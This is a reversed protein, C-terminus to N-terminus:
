KHLAKKIEEFHAPAKPSDDVLDPMIEEIYEFVEEKKQPSLPVLKAWEKVLGMGNELTDGYGEITIKILATFFIASLSNYEVSLRKAHEAPAFTKNSCKLTSVADSEMKRYEDDHLEIFESVKQTKSISEKRVSKEKVFKKKEKTKSSKWGDDEDESDKRSDKAVWNHKRLDIIEEVMFKYRVSLNASSEKLWTIYSDMYEKAIPVDLRSGAHKLIYCVIEVNEPTRDEMIFFISSHMTSDKLVLQLYLEVAFRAITLARKKISIREYEKEKNNSIEMVRKALEEATMSVMKHEVQDTAWSRKVMFEQQSLKIITRRFVTKYGTPSNEVFPEETQARFRVELREVLAAYVGTYAHEVMARNFFAKALEEMAEVTPVKISLIRKAVEDINNQCVQNLALNFEAIYPEISEFVTVPLAAKRADKFGSTKFMKFDKRKKGAGISKALINKDIISPMGESHSKLAWLQEKSYIIPLSTITAGDLSKYFSNPSSVAKDVAASSIPEAEKTSATAAITQPTNEAKEQLHIKESVTVTASEPKNASAPSITKTGASSAAEAKKYPEEKPSRTASDSSIKMKSIGKVLKDQRSVSEGKEKFTKEPKEITLTPGQAAAATTKNLAPVKRATRFAQPKAQTKKEPKKNFIANLLKKSQRATWVNGGPGVPEEEEEESEEKVPEVPNEAVTSLSKEPASVEPQAAEVKSSEESRADLEAAAEMAKKKREEELHRDLQMKMEELPSLKPKEPVPAVPEVVEAKEGSLAEEKVSESEVAKTPESITEEKESKEPEAGEVKPEESAAATDSASQHKKLEEQILQATIQSGDPLVLQFGKNERKPLGSILIDEKDAVSEERKKKKKKDIEAKKTDTRFQSKYAPKKNEYSHDKRAANYPKESYRENHMVASRQEESDM